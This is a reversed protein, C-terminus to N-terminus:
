NCMMLFLSETQFNLLFFIPLNNSGKTHLLYVFRFAECLTEGTIKVPGRFFCFTGTM